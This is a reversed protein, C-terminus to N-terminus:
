CKLNRMNLRMMLHPHTSHSPIFEGLTTFGVKQYVHIARFNTAEPDILVEAVDPFQDLLFERILLCALGKGLYSTDGIFMDLTIASGEESCWRALEDQPKSVPSTILFTFPHHNEFGLWYCAKSSGQLFEDLHNLTNQLGQGYFWEAVHPETLWTHILARHAVDVPKFNFRSNSSNEKIPKM